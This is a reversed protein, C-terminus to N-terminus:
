NAWAKVVQNVPHDSTVVAWDVRHDSTVVVWAVPYGFSHWEGAVAGKREGCRQSSGTM